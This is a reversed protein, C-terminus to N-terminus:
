LVPGAKSMEPADAKFKEFNDIFMKALKRRQEDYAAPNSWSKKPNLINTDMGFVSKPIEFKFLPDEEFTVHELSGDLIKDILARTKPLEIRYGVGYAGGTWGTNVLYTKVNYRKMKKALLDCYVKPRQTMFPSGFCASFTAQPEKVSQETGAVKATYGSLFHYAAQEPTLKSVPPLVGFADCTLFVVNKPHTGIGGVAVNDVHYIPYSIRTNQTISTDKFDIIRSEADYVVNELIAGWRIADWIEPEKERSLNVAKAYCGGEFNFIGGASWGHEDDGILKRNSSASLATKGTGSLGFFLATDAEDGINASCHMPLVGKNPLYYNMMSFIGKKMEGAYQTGGILGVKKELNFLIFVESQLGYEEYNKERYECANIITFDPEFDELEEFVPRIFMNRVFHAHWAKTTIFRVNMRHISEAGCYGDFVFLDKGKLFRNVRAQIRNFNEASIKRNVNGWWIHGASEPNEVIFKNEPSRGTFEGSRCITAGLNNLKAEGNEVEMQILRSLPLNRYIRGIEGIGSHNLEKRIDM